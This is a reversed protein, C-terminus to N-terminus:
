KKTQKAKFIGTTFFNRYLGYIGIQQMMRIITKKLSPNIPENLAEKWMVKIVETYLIHYEKERYKEDASLLSEMLYRCNLIPLVSRDICNADTILKSVKGLVEEWYFMDLVHYGNAEFLQKNKEHWAEFQSTVFENDPFRALENLKKGDINNIRAFENRALESVTGVLTKYSGMLSDFAKLSLKNNLSIFPSDFGSTDLTNRFATSFKVKCFTLDLKIALRESIKADQKESTSIDTFFIVKDKIDRCAALLLRSDWGATLGIMLKEQRNFVAKMLNPLLDSVKKVVVDLPQRELKKYPYFREFQGTALNIFHNPRLRFVNKYSTSTGIWLLRANFQETSYFPHNKDIEVPEVLNLIEPSAAVAVVEDNRKLVYAEALASFDPVVFFNDPTSWLVLCVGSLHSLQENLDPLPGEIRLNDTIQQDSFQPNRYDYWYGLLILHCGNSKKEAVTLAPHTQLHYNGIQRTSWNVQTQVQDRTLLFQKNFM